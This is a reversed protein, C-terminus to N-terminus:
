IGLIAEIIPYSVIVVIATPIAAILIYKILTNRDIISTLPVGLDTKMDKFMSSWMGIPVSITILTFIGYDDNRLLFSLILAAILSSAFCSYFINEAKTLASGRSIHQKGCKKCYYWNEDTVKVDQGAGCLGCLLGVPGLCIMGCIGDWISFAKQKVTTNNKRFWECGGQHCFPCVTDASDEVFGEPPLLPNSARAEGVEAETDAGDDEWDFEAGCNSCFKVGESIEAGCAQCVFKDLKGAAAPLQVNLAAGCERCFKASDSNQAGCSPCKGLEPLAVKEGCEPCFKAGDEFETGCKNCIM